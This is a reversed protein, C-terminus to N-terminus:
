KYLKKVNQLLSQFDEETLDENDFVRKSRDSLEGEEEYDDSFLYKADIKGSFIDNQIENFLKNDGTKLAEAIKSELGKEKSFDKIDKNLVEIPSKTVSNSIYRSAIKSLKQKINKTKTLDKEFSKRYYGNKTFLEPHYKMDTKYKKYFISNELVAKQAPNTVNGIAKIRANMTAAMNYIEKKLEASSLKNISLNSYRKTGRLNYQKNKITIATQQKNYKRSQKKRQAIKRKNRKSSNKRSM